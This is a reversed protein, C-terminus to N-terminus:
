GRQKRFYDEVRFRPRMRSSELPKAIEFDCGTLPFPTTAAEPLRRSYDAIATLSALIEFDGDERGHESVLFDGLPTERREHFRVSFSTCSGPPANPCALGLQYLGLV